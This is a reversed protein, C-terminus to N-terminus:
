HRNDVVQPAPRGMEVQASMKQLSATLAEIQEEQHAATAQLDNKLQRITSEQQEVKRHEKLFENLLM